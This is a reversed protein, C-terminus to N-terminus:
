CSAHAPLACSFPSGSWSAIGSVMNACSRLSSHGLYPISLTRSILSSCLEPAGLQHLLKLLQRALVYNDHPSRGTIFANKNRNVLRDLKPALRLSLVKAFVKALLHILCIPRYNRLEQADAHKPLLTHLAQNLKHFGPWSSSCMWSIKSSSAGAHKCSNQPLDAPSPAKRVPL